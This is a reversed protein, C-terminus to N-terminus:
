NDIVYNVRDSLPLAFFLVRIDPTKKLFRQDRLFNM